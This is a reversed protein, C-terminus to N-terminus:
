SWAVTSLPTSPRPPICLWSSHDTLTPVGPSSVTLLNAPPPLTHGDHRGTDGTDHRRTTDHRVMQKNSTSPCSSKVVGLRGMPTIAPSSARRGALHMNTARTPAHCRRHHRLDEGGYCRTSLAACPPTPRAPSSLFASVLQSRPRPSLPSPFTVGPPVSAPPERRAYQYLQSNQSVTHGGPRQAPIESETALRYHTATSGKRGATKLLRVTGIAYILLHM